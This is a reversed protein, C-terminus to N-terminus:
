SCMLRSSNSLQFAAAGGDAKDDGPAARCPGVADDGEVDAAAVVGGDPRGAMAAAAAAATAAVPVVGAAPNRLGANTCCDAPM